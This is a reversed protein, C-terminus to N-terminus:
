GDQTKSGQQGLMLTDVELASFRLEIRAKATSRHGHGTMASVKIASWHSGQWAGPPKKKAKPKTKQKTKKKREGAIDRPNVM